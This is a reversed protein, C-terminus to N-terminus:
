EREGAELIKIGQDEMRIATKEDISDTEGSQCILDYTGDANKLIYSNGAHIDFTEQEEPYQVIPSDYATQIVFSYSLLMILMSITLLAATVFKNEMRLSSNESIMKFREVIDYKDDKIVLANTLYLPKGQKKCRLKKLTSVITTLYDAKNRVAMQETVCLDCKIELTQDLDKKLLLAIPNWWFFCCYIHILMKIYLDKNLFHTYEHLLIYYLESDNYNEEPLVIWKKIIGIGMPVDVHENLIVEIKIKKKDKMVKELINICHENKGSSSSLMQKLTKNYKWVFNLILILAVASLLISLIELGSIKFMGIEGWLFDYLLNSVFGKFQLVKTFPLDLPLLVRFACLLYLGIVTSVGFNKMFCYKKRCLYLLIILINGFVLAMFMSFINIEM